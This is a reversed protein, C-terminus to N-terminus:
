SALKPLLANLVSEKGFFSARFNRAQAETKKGLHKADKERNVRAIANCVNTHEVGLREHFLVETKLSYKQFLRLNQGLTLTSLEGKFTSDTVAIRQLDDILPVIVRRRFEFEFAKMLDLVASTFDHENRPHTFFGEAHRLFGQTEKALEDFRSGLANRWTAECEADIALTVKESEDQAGRWDELRSVREMLDSQVDMMVTQAEYVSEVEDVDIEIPHLKSQSLTANQLPEAKGLRPQAGSHWSQAALDELYTDVYGRAASLIVKYLVGLHVGQPPDSVPTWALDPFLEAALAVSFAFQRSEASLHRVLGACEKRAHDQDDDSLDPVVNFWALGEGHVAAFVQKVRQGACALERMLLLATEDEGSSQETIGLSRRQMLLVEDLAFISGAPRSLISRRAIESAKRMYEGRIEDIELALGMEAQEIMATLSVLVRPHERQCSECTSSHWRARWLFGSFLNSSELVLDGELISAVRQCESLDPFSFEDNM